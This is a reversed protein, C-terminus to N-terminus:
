LNQRLYQGAWDLGLFLCIPRLPVYIQADPGEVAPLIDGYFEVEQERIPVIAVENSPNVPMVAVGEGLN